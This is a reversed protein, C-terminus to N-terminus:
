CKKLNELRKYFNNDHETNINYEFKDLFYLLEHMLTDFLVSLAIPQKRKPTLNYITIKRAKYESYSFQNGIQPRPENILIVQCKCCDYFNCFEKTIFEVYEKCENYNKTNSKLFLDTKEKILNNLCIM